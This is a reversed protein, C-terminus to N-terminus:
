CLTDVLNISCGASLESCRLMGQLVTPASRISVGRLKSRIHQQQPCQRRSTGKTRRGHLANEEHHLFEIASCSYYAASVRCPSRLPWLAKTM